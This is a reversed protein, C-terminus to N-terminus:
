RRGAAFLRRKAASRFVRGDPVGVSECRRLALCQIPDARCQQHLAAGGLSASQGTRAIEQERRKKEKTAINAIADELREMFTSKGSGWGGFLGISLPPTAEELCILRAFAQVDPEIGLPDDSPDRGPRVPPRDSTFGSLSIELP